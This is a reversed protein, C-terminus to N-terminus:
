RAQLAQPLRVMDDVKEMALIMDIVEDQQGAAHEDYHLM